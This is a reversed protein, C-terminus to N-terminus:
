GVSQMNKGLISSRIKRFIIEIQKRRLFVIKKGSMEIYVILVFSILYSELIPFCIIQVERIM